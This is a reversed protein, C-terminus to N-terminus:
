INQVDFMLRGFEEEILRVKWTQDYRRLNELNNDGNVYILDYEQDKTNYKQKKFWSDLADNNIDDLNRWLVLVRDSNPAIGEVVRMAPGDQNLSIADIHKVTLGLLWNFTEVLDVNVIQTEGNRDVRLKYESPNRFTQINLLSNSGRSEFELMYSLLYQERVDPDADLLQQQPGTRTLELNNLADEFTELYCYKFVFSEGTAKGPRGKVWDDSYKTKIVRPKLISDFYEAVEVLIFRLQKKRQRIISSVAHATTGSGAFHDMIWGGNPTVYDLLEGILEHDKPNPFADWGFVDRILRTAAKSHKYLVSSKVQESDEFYYRKMMLRKSNEPDFEVEGKALMDRMTSEIFRWGRSPIEAKEGTSPNIIEYRPGGGGPWSMDTDDRYPGRGDLKNYLLISRAHAPDLKTGVWLNFEQKIRAFDTGYQERLKSFKAKAQELAPKQERWEPQSAKLAELDKAYLLFYEHSLSVHKADNKRGREWAFEALRNSEGFITDHLIVARHMENRDISSLFVGNQKMLLRCQGVREYLFALWSSHQYSDKYPFENNQTNYPPDVYFTSIQGAFRPALLRCANANESCILLGTCQDDLEEIHALLRDRFTSTYFKTDIPLHRNSDLFAITLPVSYGPENVKQVSQDIAFLRVWEERQSDNAVIEPYLEKPVRDLTIYYNTELVFKRKLWLKKQFNELQELFQILKHAIKRIVKIKSLYQEVRPVTDHEIDDLHM